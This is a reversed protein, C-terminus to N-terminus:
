SALNGPTNRNRVDLGRSLGFNPDGLILSGGELVVFIPDSILVDSVLPSFFFGSVPHCKLAADDVQFDVLPPLVPKQRGLAQGPSQERKKAM